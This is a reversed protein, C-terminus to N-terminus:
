NSLGSINVNEIDNSVMSNLQLKTFASDTPLFNNRIGNTYSDSGGDGMLWIQNVVFADQSTTQFNSQNTDSNPLRYENDIRYDAVWSNPDSIMAVIENNSPMASGQRTLTTVVMSAVKGSFSYNTGKGGIHFYGGFSQTMSNGVSTWYGARDALNSGVVGNTFDYKRIDFAQRLNAETANAASFRAGNHAIYIGNWQGGTISAIQVENKATSGINGWGFYLLNQPTLKLYISDNRTDVNWIIQDGSAYVGDANFVVATAWPKENGDSSTYGPTVPLAIEHQAGGMTIPTFYAGSRVMSAYEGSGSFDLAKTWPTTSSPSPTPTTLTTLDSVSIDGSTNLAAMVIKVPEIDEINTAEYTHSFTGGESPSPENMIGNVNCAILWASTGDVEIAYDYFAQTLSSIVINNVVSGDRYFKFTHSTASEYEWVIAADFDSLELTGFTEPQNSLGIIYMDNAETLSPLINAEIYAKEVVFREGDAVTGNLHVVSGDDMTDADIMATTGSVHSFGSIATVPATLNTVVLTLTGTSSGYSNTRVVSITYTDSPNNDYDDLVEPATGNLHIGNVDITLGSNDTDIISTIYSADSPHLQINVASLENVTVTNDSFASPSLDDTKKCSTVLILPLSIILFISIPKM